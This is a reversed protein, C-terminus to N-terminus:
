LVHPTSTEGHVGTHTHELYGFGGADMDGDLKFDGKVHLDHTMTVTPTDLTVGGPAVIEIASGKLRLVTTGNDTRLEAGTMGVGGTVVHPQSRPGPIVFGDSLDQLRYEAAAQVGGSQWWADICREAIVILAEDGAKLPYTLIYGGGGPFVVPCDVLLPLDAAEARGNPAIIAGRIAPQITCTMRAADFSQIIGPMATHLDMRAATILDRYSAERVDEREARSIAM